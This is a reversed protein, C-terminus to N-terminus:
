HPVPMPPEEAGANTEVLRPRCSTEKKKIAGPFILMSGSFPSNEEVVWYNEPEM